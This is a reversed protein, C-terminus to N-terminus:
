LWKSIRDDLSLRRQEALMVVVAATFQKGLSGSQYVTSDSAPVGLEVNALGYGRRLLVSDNRMVAISIGPIHQRSMEAAVYQNVASPATQQGALSGCPGMLLAVFFPRSLSDPWEQRSRAHAALTPCPLSAWSGASSDSRAWIIPTM